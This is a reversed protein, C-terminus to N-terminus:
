ECPLAAPLIVVEGAGCDGEMGAAAVHAPFLMAIALCIRNPILFDRLDSWAAWVLLGAFVTLALRDAFLTFEM